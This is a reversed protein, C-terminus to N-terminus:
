RVRMGKHECCKMRMWFEEDMKQANVTQRRQSWCQDLTLGVLPFVKDLKGVAHAAELVLAPMYFANQPYEGGYNWLM